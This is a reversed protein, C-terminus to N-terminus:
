YSAAVNLLEEPTKAIGTALKMTFSKFNPREFQPILAKIQACVDDVHIHEFPMPVDELRFASGSQIAGKIRSLLKDEAMGPGYVNSLRLIIHNKVKLKIYDEAARKSFGYVNIPRECTSSFIMWKPQFELLLQATLMINTQLCVAPYQEAVGVRSIAALHIIGDFPGKVFTKGLDYGVAEPLAKMLHKGIFGSSGTCLIRSTM